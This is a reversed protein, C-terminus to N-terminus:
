LHQEGSPSLMGAWSLLGQVIGGGALWPRTHTRQSARGLGGRERGFVHASGAGVLGAVDRAWDLSERLVDGRNQSQESQTKLCELGGGCIWDYHEDLIEAFHDRFTRYSFPTM